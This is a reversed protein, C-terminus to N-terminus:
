GIHQEESNWLCDQTKLFHPSETEGPVLKAPGPAGTIFCLFSHNTYNLNKKRRKRKLGQNSKRAALYLTHLCCGGQCGCWSDSDARGHQVASITLHVPLTSNQHISTCCGNYLTFPTYLKIYKDVDSMTFLATRTYLQIYSKTFYVPLTSNKHVATNKHQVWCAQTASYSLSFPCPLENDRM